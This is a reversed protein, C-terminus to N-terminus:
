EPSTGAQDSRTRGEPRAERVRISWHSTDDPRDVFDRRETSITPKAQPPGNATRRKWEAIVARENQRFVVRIPVEVREGRRFEYPGDRLQIDFAPLSVRNEFDHDFYISLSAHLMYLTTFTAYDRPFEETGSWPGAQRDRVGSIRWQYNEDDAQQVIARMGSVNLCVQGPHDPDPFLGSIMGFSKGTIDKWTKGQDTSRHVRAPANSSSPNTVAFLTGNPLLLVPGYDDVDSVRTWTSGDDRSLYLGFKEPGVPPRWGQLQRSSIYYVQSSDEPERAFMGGPPMEPPTTLKVWRKTALTARFVGARNAAFLM